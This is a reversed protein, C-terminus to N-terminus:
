KSPYKREHDDVLRNLRQAERRMDEIRKRRKPIAIIEEIVVIVIGIIIWMWWSM